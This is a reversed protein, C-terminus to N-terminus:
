ERTKAKKGQRGINPPKGAVRKIAKKESILSKQVENREYERTYEYGTKLGLFMERQKEGNSAYEAYSFGILTKRRKSTKALAPALNHSVLTEIANGISLKVVDWALGQVIGQWMLYGIAIHWPDPPAVCFAVTVGKKVLDPHTEKWARHATPNLVRDILQERISHISHPIQSKATPIVFHKSSQRAGLKITLADRDILIYGPQKM